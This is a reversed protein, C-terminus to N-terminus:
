CHFASRSHWCRGALESHRLRPINGPNMQASRLHEGSCGRAGRRRRPNGPFHERYTIAAGAAALKSWARAAPIAVEKERAAARTLLLNAVNACAILLVLAVSGSCYLCHGACTEM